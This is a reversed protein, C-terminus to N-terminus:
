YKIIMPLAVNVPRTEPAIRPTGNTGDTAIPMKALTLTGASGTDVGVATGVSNNVWNVDRTGTGHLHGQFADLQVTGFVRGADYTSGLTRLFAGTNLNPLNFTTSGDGLGWPAAIIASTVTSTAPASMTIQNAGDVTLITTGPTIGTGEIPFGARLNATSSIGTVVASTSTRAGTFTQTLVAMLTAYTTRSVAAGSAMLWGDPAFVGPWYQLSGIPTQPANAWQWLANSASAPPTNGVNADQLSVYWLAGVRVVSGTYYTTGVEWEPIGNEMLYATQFSHEYLMANMEELAPAKNSGIIADQWGTGWAALTMITALDKTTVIAGAKASGFQGFNSTAGSAGFIKHLTRTLKAM